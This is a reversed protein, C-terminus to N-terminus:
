SLRPVEMVNAYEFEKTLQPVIKERYATLMRPPQESKTGPAKPAAPKDAIKQQQKAKSM